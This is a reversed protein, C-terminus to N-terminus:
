NVLVLKLLSIQLEELEEIVQTEEDDSTAQYFQKQLQSIGRQVKKLQIDKKNLNRSKDKEAIIEGRTVIRDLISHLQLAYQQLTQSMSYHLELTIAESDELDTAIQKIVIEEEEIIKELFPKFDAVGSRAIKSQQLQLFKEISPILKAGPVMKQIHKIEKLISQQLRVREREIMELMKFMKVNGVRQILAQVKHGIQDLMDLSSKLLQEYNKSKKSKLLGELEKIKQEIQEKQAPERAKSAQRKLNFIQSRSQHEGSTRKLGLRQVKQPKNLSKEAQSVGGKSPPTLSQESLHRAIIEFRQGIFNLVEQTEESFDSPHKLSFKDQSYGKMVVFAHLHNLLADIDNQARNSTLKCPGSFCQKVRKHISIFMQKLRALDPSNVKDNLLEECKKLTFKCIKLVKKRFAQRLQELDAEEQHLQAKLIKIKAQLQQKQKPALVQLQRTQNMDVQKQTKPLAIYRKKIENFLEEATTDKSSLLAQLALDSKSSPKEDFDFIKFNTMVPSFNTASSM